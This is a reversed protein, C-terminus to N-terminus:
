AKASKGVCKKGSGCQHEGKSGACQHAADKKEGPKAAGCSGAGCKSDAPAAALQTGHASVESMQFLEASASVQAAIGLTLVVAPLLKKCDVTF